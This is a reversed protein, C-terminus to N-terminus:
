CDRCKSDAPLEVDPTLPNLRVQISDHITDYALRTYAALARGIHNRRHLLAHSGYARDLYDNPPILYTVYDLLRIPRFVFKWNPEVLWSWIGQQPRNEAKALIHEVMAELAKEEWIPRKGIPLADIVWQPVPADFLCCAVRLASGVISAAGAESAVEVLLEWDLEDGYQKVAEAIDLCHMLRGDALLIRELKPHDLVTPLYIAHKVLHISLSMLVDVWNPEWIQAGLLDARTAREFMSDYDVTLLTRPHDFAWHIEIWTWCDPLSLELHLHHRLYYEDPLLGPWYRDFTLQEGLRICDHVQNRRVLLDLDHGPRMQPNHYIRNSVWLGKLPITPVNNAEALAMYDHLIKTLSSAKERNVAEASALRGLVDRSLLGMLGQQRLYDGVLVSMKNEIALDIVQEWDLAPVDVLPKPDRWERALQWLFAEEASLWPTMTKVTDVSKTQVAM